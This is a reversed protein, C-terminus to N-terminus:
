KPRAVGTSLDLVWPAGSRTETWLATHDFEGGARHRRFGIRRDDLWVPHTDWTGTGGTVRKAGTGDARITWIRFTEARLRMGEDEIPTSDDARAFVIRTDDPSWGAHICAGTRPGIWQRRGHRMDFCVLRKSEVAWRSFGQSFVMRHGDHSWDPPFIGAAMGPGTDVDPLTWQFSRRRVADHAFCRHGDAQASLGEGNRKGYLVLTGDPSWDFPFPGFEEACRVVPWAAGRRLDAVFLTTAPGRREPRHDLSFAVRWPATPAPLRRKPAPGLAM